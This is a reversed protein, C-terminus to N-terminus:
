IKAKVPLRSEQANKLQLREQIKRKKITIYITSCQDIMDIVRKLWSLSKQLCKIKYDFLAKMHIM